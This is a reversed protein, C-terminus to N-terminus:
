ERTGAQEPKHDILQVVREVPFASSLHLLGQAGTHTFDMTRQVHTGSKGAALCEGLWERM